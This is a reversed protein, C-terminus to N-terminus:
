GVSGATEALVQAAIDESERRPRRGSKNIKAKAKAKRGNAQVSSSDISDLHARDAANENPRHNTQRQADYIVREPEMREFVGRCLGVFRTRSRFIGPNRVALEADDRFENAQRKNIM